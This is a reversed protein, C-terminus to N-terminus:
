IKLDTFHIEQDINQQRDILDRGTMIQLKNNQKPIIESKERDAWTTMQSKLTRTVLVPCANKKPKASGFPVRDRKCKRAKKPGLIKRKQRRAGLKRERKHQPIYIYVVLLPFSPCSLCFLVRLFPNAPRSLCCQVPLVPCGSRAPLVPCTSCSVCFLFFPILLFPCSFPVVLVLCASCSLFLPIPLFARASLVLVILCASCSQCFL